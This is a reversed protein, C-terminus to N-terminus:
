EEETPTRNYMEFDPDFRFDFGKELLINGVEHMISLVDDRDEIDEIDFELIFQGHVTM